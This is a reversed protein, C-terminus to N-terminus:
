SGSCMEGRCCGCAGTGGARTRDGRGATEGRACGARGVAGGFIACGAVDDSDKDGNDVVAGVREEEEESADKSSQNDVGSGAGSEGFCGNDLETGDGPGELGAMWGRLGAAGGCGAPGRTATRPLGGGSSEDLALGIQEPNVGVVVM